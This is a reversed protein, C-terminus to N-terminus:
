VCTCIYIYLLHRHMQIQRFIDIVMMMVMLRMIVMMRIPAMLRMMLGVIAGDDACGHHCFHIKSSQGARNYCSYLVKKRPLVDSTVGM